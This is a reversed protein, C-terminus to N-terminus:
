QSHYVSALSYVCNYPVNKVQNLEDKSVILAQKELMADFEDCLYTYSDSAEYRLDNVVLVEM